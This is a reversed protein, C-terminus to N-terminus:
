RKLADAKAMTRRGLYFFGVPFALMVITAFLGRISLVANLRSGLTTLVSFASGVALFYCVGASARLGATETTRAVIQGGKVAAQAADFIANSRAPEPDHPRAEFM